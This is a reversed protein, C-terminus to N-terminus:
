LAISPLLIQCKIERVHTAARCCVAPGLLRNLDADLLNSYHDLVSCYCCNLWPMCQERYCYLMCLDEATHQVFWSYVDVSAGFCCSGTGAIGSAKNQREANVPGSEAQRM